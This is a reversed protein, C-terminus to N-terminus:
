SLLTFGHPSIDLMQGVKFHAVKLLMKCETDCRREALEQDIVVATIGTGARERSSNPLSLQFIQQVKGIKGVPACQFDILTQTLVKTWLYNYYSAIIKTVVDTDLSIILLLVNDKPVVYGVHVFPTM